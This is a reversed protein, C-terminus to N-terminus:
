TADETRDAKICRVDRHGMVRHVLVAHDCAAEHLPCRPGFRCRDEPWAGTGVEGAIETLTDVNGELERATRVLGGTYPHRPDRLLTETDGHEVIQGAYMVVIKDSVKEAISMDHTIFVFSADIETRLKDFLDVIQSEVLNDLNTTPEDAVILSPKCFLVLAILCRQLMGGSMQHPYKRLVTGPDAIDVQRLAEQAEALSERRSLATGRHRKGLHRFHWGITKVPNFSGVPDQFIMALETGRLRDFAAPSLAHTDQGDFTIHDAKVIANPPLLGLIAKCTVTKGSGSEGILGLVRGKELTFSVDSCVELTSNGLQFAVSLNKVDLLPVTV